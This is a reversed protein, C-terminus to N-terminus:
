EGGAQGGMMKQFEEMTMTQYDEPTTFEVSAVKEQNVEKVTMVMKIGQNHIEYQMPFGKLGKYQSKAEQANIEETYFVTLTESKEGYTIEAKKCKYGAIEKTEDMYTIKPDQKPEQKKLEEKNMKIAVKNGMMNMLTTSTEADGDYISITSGMTTNQETRTKAGKIKMLTEKPLMAEYGEMEEPLDEYEINYTITGEFAKQAFVNSTAIILVSLIFTSVLKKM